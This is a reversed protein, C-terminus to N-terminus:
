PQITITPRSLPRTVLSQMREDFHLKVANMVRWVQLNGAEGVAKAGYLKVNEGMPRTLDIDAPDIKQYERTNMPVLIPRDTHFFIKVPNGDNDKYPVSSISTTTTQFLDTLAPVAERAEDQPPHATDQIERQLTVIRQPFASGETGDMSFNDIVTIHLIAWGENMHQALEMDAGPINHITSGSVGQNLTKIEIARKAEVPPQAVQAQPSRILANARELMRQLSAITVGADAMEREHKAELDNITRTIDIHKMWNERMEAIERDKAALDKQLDKILDDRAQALDTEIGAITSEDPATADPSVDVNIVDRDCVCCFNQCTPCLEYDTPAAADDLPPRPKPQMAAVKEEYSMTALPSDDPVMLLALNIGDHPLAPNLADRKAKDDDIDKGTRWGSVFGSGPKIYGQKAPTKLDAFPNDDITPPPTPEAPVADFMTLPKLDKALVQEHNIVKKGNSLTHWANPDDPFHAINRWVGVVGTVTVRAGQFLAESGPKFPFPDFSSTDTTDNPTDLTM